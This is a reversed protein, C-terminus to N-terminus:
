TEQIQDLSIDEVLTQISPTTDKVFVYYIRQKPLYQLCQNSLAAYLMMQEDSIIRSKHYKKSSTKFDVISPVGKFDGLFDPTGEIDFEGIKGFLREEMKFPTFHKAHLRAFRAILKLGIDNLDDFKFRTYRLDADQYSNWYLSFTEEGDEG